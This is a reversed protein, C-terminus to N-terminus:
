ALIIAYLTYPSEGMEEAPLPAKVYSTGSEGILRLLLASFVQAELIAIV